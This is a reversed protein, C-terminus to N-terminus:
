ANLRRAALSIEVALRAALQNISMAVLDLWPALSARPQCASKIAYARVSCNQDRPAATSMWAFLGGAGM